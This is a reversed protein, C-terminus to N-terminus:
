QLSGMDRLKMSCASVTPSLATSILKIRINRHYLAVKSLVNWLSRLTCCSVTRTRCTGTYWILRRTTRYNSNHVHINLNETATIEITVINFIYWWRLFQPWNGRLVATIICVLFHSKRKSLYHIHVWLKNYEGFRVGLAGDFRRQTAWWATYQRSGLRIPSVVANIISSSNRNDYFGRM